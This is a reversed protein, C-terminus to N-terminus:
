PKKLVVVLNGSLDVKWGYYAFSLLRNLLYRTCGRVLARPTRAEHQQAHWPAEGKAVMRM